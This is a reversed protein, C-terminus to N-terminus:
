AEQAAKECHLRHKWAATLDHFSGGPAFFGLDISIHKRRVGPYAEIGLDVCGDEYGGYLQGLVCRCGDALHLTGCDIREWWGVGLKEDLFRWGADVALEVEPPFEPAEVIEPTTEVTTM